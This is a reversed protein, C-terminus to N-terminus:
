WSRYQQAPKKVFNESVIQLGVIYAAYEPHSRLVINMYRDGPQDFEKRLREILAAYYAIAQHATDEELPEYGLDKFLVSTRGEKSGLTIGVNNVFIGIDVVPSYEKYVEYNKRYLSVIVDKVPEIADSAAMRQTWSGGLQKFIRLKEDLSKQVVERMQQGPIQFSIVHEIIHKRFDKKSYGSISAFREKTVLDARVGIRGLYDKADAAKQDALKIDEDMHSLNLTDFRSWKGILSGPFRKEEAFQVSTVTKQCSIGRLYGTTDQDQPSWLESDFVNFIDAHYSILNHNM